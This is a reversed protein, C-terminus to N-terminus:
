WIGTVAAVAFATSFAPLRQYSGLEHQPHAL